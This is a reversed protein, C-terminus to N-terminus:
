DKKPKKPPKKPKPAHQQLITDIIFRSKQSETADPNKLAYDRMAVTRLYKHYLNEAALEGDFHEDDNMTTNVRFFNVGYFLQIKKMIMGSFFLLFPKFLLSHIPTDM